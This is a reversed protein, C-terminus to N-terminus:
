VQKQLIRKFKLKFTSVLPDHEIEDGDQAAEKALQDILQM